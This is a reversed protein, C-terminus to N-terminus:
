SALLLPYGNGPRHYGIRLDKQRILGSPIQILGAAPFDEGQQLLKM